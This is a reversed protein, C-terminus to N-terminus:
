THVHVNIRMDIVFQRQYAVIRGSLAKEILPAEHHWVSARTVYNEM